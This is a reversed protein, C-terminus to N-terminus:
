ESRLVVIPHVKLARRAPVYCAGLSVVALVLTAAVFTLPDGPGVDTLLGRMFQTTGFALALGLAAGTVILTAGDRMLPALVDLRQAGLAIRVGVERTRQRASFAMVGYVGVAALVLAVGAFSMLLGAVTRQPTVRERLLDDMSKIEFVPLTPDLAKVESRVSSVIANAPGATRIMLTMPGWIGNYASMYYAPSPALAPTHSRTDGAVGIVTSYDDGGGPSVRRGVPDEDGWLMRALTENVIVVKQAHEDDNITFSRGKVIPIEMTRFYEADVIRWDSQISETQPISAPGSPFVNLSTNFTNMPAGSTVGVAQV